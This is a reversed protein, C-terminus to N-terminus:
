MDVYAPGGTAPIHWVINDAPDKIDCMKCHLCNAASINVFPQGQEDRCIEYVGAPCYFEAPEVGFKQLNDLQRSSDRFRLHPPQNEDHFVGALQLSSARDFSVVHDPRFAPVARRAGTKELRLRKRDAIAAPLADVLLDFPSRRAFQRLWLDKLVLGGGIYSGFRELLPKVNRATRLEEAMSSNEFRSQYDELVDQSRGAEIAAFCSEAALIASSVANHSGKLRAVNMLGAADGLLAGGPFVLRPVAQWGGESLTRAGYGIRQANELVPRISPHSKFLQFLEFPSLDAHRYDAHVVLGLSVLNDGYHYIFGGGNAKRGLPWGNTHRVQGPRHDRTPIQWLEKLGLAYRPVARGKDLGYRAILQGALYGRAGEAILVYKGHLEMGQMFGAAPRGNRDLGQDPTVVGTLAGNQDFVAESAGFGTYIEVGLAEAQQGLWRALAGLSGLLCGSNSMVRPLLFGPLEISRNKTLVSMHESQVPTQLPAGQERWAPMLSDLGVPDIVAGSLVHAGVEGGKELVVVSLERRAIQAQQKLRIAAALGAVGAGVIVVDFSMSDRKSEM